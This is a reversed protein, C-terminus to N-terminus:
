DYMIVWRGIVERALMAKKVKDLEELKIKKTILKDTKLLGTNMVEM